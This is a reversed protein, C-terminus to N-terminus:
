SARTLVGYARTVFNKEDFSSSKVPRCRRPEQTQKEISEVTTPVAAINGAVMAKMVLFCTGNGTVRMRAWMAAVPNATARAAESLNAVFLVYRSPLFLLVPRMSYQAHGSKQGYWRASCALSHVCRWVLDSATQFRTSSPHHSCMCCIQSGSERLSGHLQGNNAAVLNRPPQGALWSMAGLPLGAMRSQM